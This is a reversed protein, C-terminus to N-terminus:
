KGSWGKMQGLAAGCLMGLVVPWIISILVKAVRDSGSDKDEFCGYICGFIGLIYLVSIVAFFGDM